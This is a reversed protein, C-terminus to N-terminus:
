PHAVRDGAQRPQSAAHAQGCGKVGNVAIVRGLHLAQRVEIELRSAAGPNPDIFEALAM